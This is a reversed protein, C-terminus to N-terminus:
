NDSHCRYTKSGGSPRCLKWLLDSADKGDLLRFAVPIVDKRECSNLFAAQEKRSAFTSKAFDAYSKAFSEVALSENVMPKVVSDLWPVMEDPCTEYPDQGDRLMEWVRNANLGTFVKHLKVYTDFKVKIKTGDPYCLVFGEANKIDMAKLKEPADFQFKKAVDPGQQASIDDPTYEEGTDKDVAGLLVLGAKDGYDVVIRNEPYVIEFIFTKSIKNRFFDMVKAKSPDKTQERLWATAWKAQDSSFSGRTCIRPLGDELFYLIGMSGDVKEWVTPVGKPLSAVQEMNFFKKFPRAVVSGDRSDVVLGRCMLTTEDWAGQIQCKQTYDYIKLWPFEPHERESILGLEIHSSPREFQM